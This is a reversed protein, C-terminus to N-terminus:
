GTALNCGSCPGREGMGAYAGLVILLIQAQFMWIGVLLGCVGQWVAPRTFLMSSALLAPLIAFAAGLEIGGSSQEVAGVDTTRTFGFFAIGVLDLAAASLVMFPAPRRRVQWLVWRLAHGLEALLDIDGYRLM